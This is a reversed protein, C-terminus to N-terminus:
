DRSPAFAHPAVDRCVDNFLEISVQQWSQTEVGDWKGLVYGRYYRYDGSHPKLGKETQLRYHKAWLEAKLGKDFYSAYAACQPLLHDHAMTPLATTLLLLTLSTKM